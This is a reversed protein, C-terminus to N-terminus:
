DMDMGEFYYETEEESCIDELSDDDIALKSLCQCCFCLIRKLKRNYFFYSFSWITGRDTFDDNESEPKYCYVDCDEIVIVEDIAEWIVNCLSSDEGFECAWVKATELLYNDVNLKVSEFDEKEFSSPHLLRFDYDPYVQNMALVLYIFTKRSTSSSLPGVPSISLNSPSSVLSDIVEQELERFHKKDLGAGKCSYAELHGKLLSDGLNVTSLYANIRALPTYELFKM